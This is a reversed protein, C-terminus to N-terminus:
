ENKLYTHKTLYDLNKPFQQVLDNNNQHRNETTNYSNLIM